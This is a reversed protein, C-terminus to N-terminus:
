GGWAAFNACAYTRDPIAHLRYLDRLTVGAGDALGKLEELYDPPVFPRAALWSRVLPVKLYRRFYDLVHRVSDRVDERLIAGHQYGLEYPSGSLHIVQLGDHEEAYVTVLSVHCTVLLLLVLHLVYPTTLWRRKM